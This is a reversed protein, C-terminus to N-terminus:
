RPPNNIKFQALLIHQRIADPNCAFPPFEGTIYNGEQVQLIVMHSFDGMSKHQNRDEDDILKRFIRIKKGM